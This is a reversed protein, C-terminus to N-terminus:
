RSGTLQFSHSVLVARARSKFRPRSPRRVWCRRAATPRTRMAWSGYASPWNLPRVIPCRRAPAGGRSELHRSREEMPNIQRNVQQRARSTAAGAISGLSALKDPATAAELESADSPSGIQLEDPISTASAGQQQQVVHTLEHAILKRGATSAPSFQGTGFVVDRGVTYALANVARASEAAKADAHVRVNSFDHGFRPEMCSRTAVDLPQGPSRLVEHVIPPAASMLAANTKARQLTAQRNKKCEECEGGSVIHRGCACKRRRLYANAPTFSEKQVSKVPSEFQVGM